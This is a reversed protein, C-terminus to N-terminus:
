FLYAMIWAIFDTDTAGFEELEIKCSANFRIGKSFQGVFSGAPTSATYTGFHHRSTNNDFVVMQSISPYTIAIGDVTVIPRIDILLTLFSWDDIVGRGVLDILTFTSSASVTGDVRVSENSTPFANVGASAAIKDLDWVQQGPNWRQPFNLSNVLQNSRWHQHFDPAGGLSDRLSLNVVQQELEGRAFGFFRKLPDAVMAVTRERSRQRRRTAM